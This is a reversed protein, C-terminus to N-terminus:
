LRTKKVQRKDIKLILCWYNFSKSDLELLGRERVVKKIAPRSYNKFLWKVSQSDGFRLIQTIIRTKDTQNNLKKNDTYWFFPKLIKSIM